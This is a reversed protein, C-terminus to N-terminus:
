KRGRLRGRRTGIVGAHAGIEEGDLQEEGGEAAQSAPAGLV